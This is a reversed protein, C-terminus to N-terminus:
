QVYKQEETPFTQVRAPEVANIRGSRVEYVQDCRAITTLRHAVILITRSSKLSDITAMVAAETENDLASSAEDLVLIPADSYLARAIGIRQCQGGSLRVGREGVHTDLGKPLVAVFDALQAAVVARLVAAEDIEEDSLGFAINRRLSDDSLFVTQPVYGICAQWAPLDDRIDHDDALIRGSSPTLLGLVLNILTSKGAGSPGIFGITSGCCIDLDVDALVNDDAGSYRYSLKELRLLRTFPLRERKGEMVSLEVPLVSEAHLTDIVPMNYRLNQLANLVKNASPLLRFAAAAFLGLTPVIAEVPKGQYLMTLVLGVLGAVTLVELWLRPLATIISQRKGVTANASNHMEYAALFHKERGLLKVDRVGGLGQQLCQLRQAEHHQRASGWRLIRERTLRYFVYGALALSGGVFVAGHPEVYLLLAAVGVLVLCESVLTTGSMVAGAFQGVSTTVNRVLLASNRQMHFEYPQCLYGMYLQRSVSAEISFVYRAQWWALLALFGAKIAYLLVMALVMAGVLYSREGGLWQTALQLVPYREGLAPDTIVALVPVVLGIGVTELVMCVLMLGLLVVGERRQATDLLDLLKSLITM